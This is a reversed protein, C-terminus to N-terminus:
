FQLIVFSVFRTTLSSTVTLTLTPNVFGYTVNGVDQTVIVTQNTGTVADTELTVTYLTNSVKDFSAVNFSTVGSIPGVVTASNTAFTGFARVPTVAFIGNENRFVLESKLSEDGVATYIVSAPDTPAGQANREPINVQKHYGGNDTSFSIHDEGIIGEISQTNVLMDSQDVSPDNNAAPVGNNYTYNTM